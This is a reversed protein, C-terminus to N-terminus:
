HIACFAASNTSKHYFIKQVQLFMEGNLLQNDMTLFERRYQSDLPDLKDERAQSVLVFYKNIQTFINKQM